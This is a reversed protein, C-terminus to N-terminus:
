RMQAAVKGLQDIGTGWGEQFGMDDHKQCDAPTKHFVRASYRTGAGEDEMTIIATIALWPELPLWGEGLVTTFVIKERLVIELFCGEVHPQFEGGNESMLTEFGGGARMDMTVVKCKIPEPIWWKEFHQPEAWAKWVVSRPANVLRSITLENTQKAM